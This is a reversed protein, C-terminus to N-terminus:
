KLKKTLRCQKTIENEAKVAASDEYNWTHSYLSTFFRGHSIESWGSSFSKPLVLPGMQFDAVSTRTEMAILHGLLLSYPLKHQHLSKSSVAAGSGTSSQTTHNHSDHTNHKLPCQNPSMQISNVNRCPMIYSCLVYTVEKHTLSQSEGPFPDMHYTHFCWLPLEHFSTFGVTNVGQFCKNWEKTSQLYIKQQVTM